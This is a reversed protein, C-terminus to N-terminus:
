EQPTAKPTVFEECVSAQACLGAILVAIAFGFAFSLDAATGFTLREVGRGLVLGIEYAVWALWWRRIARLGWRQRWAFAIAAVAFLLGICLEVVSRVIMPAPGVATGLVTSALFLHGGTIVKAIGLTAALGSAISVTLIAKLKLGNSYM